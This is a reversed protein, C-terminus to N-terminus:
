LSGHAGQFVWNNPLLGLWACSGGAGAFWYSRKVLLVPSPPSVFGSALRVLDLCAYSGKAAAFILPTWSAKGAGRAELPVREGQRRYTALVQSRGGSDATLVFAGM